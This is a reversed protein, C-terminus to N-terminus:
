AAVTARASEDLSMTVDRFHNGEFIGADIDISFIIHAFQEIATSLCSSVVPTEVKPPAVQERSSVFARLPKFQKSEEPRRPKAHSILQSL